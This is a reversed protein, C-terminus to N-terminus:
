NNKLKGNISSIPIIPDEKRLYGTKQHSFVNEAAILLIENQADGNARASLSLAANLANQKHTRIEINHSISKFLGVLFSLLYLLISVILIRFTMAKGLEYYLITKDFCNCIETNLDSYKKLKCPTICNFEFCFYKFLFVIATALLLVTIGILVIIWARDKNLKKIGDSLFSNQDVLSAKDFVNGFKSNFENYENEMKAKQGMLEDIKLQFEHQALDLKKKSEDLLEDERKKANDLREQLSSLQYQFFVDNFEDIIKNIDRIISVRNAIYNQPDYGSVNRFLQIIRALVSNTKRIVTESPYNVQEVVIDLKKFFDEITPKLEILSNTGFSNQKYFDSLDKKKIENILRLTDKAAEKM